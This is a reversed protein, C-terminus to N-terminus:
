IPLINSSQHRLSFLCSSRGHPVSWLRHCFALVAFYLVLRLFRPERGLDVTQRKM